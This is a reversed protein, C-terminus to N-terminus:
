SRARSGARRPGLWARVDACECLAPRSPAPKPPMRNSFAPHNMMHPNDAPHSWSSRLGSRVTGWPTRNKGLLGSMNVIRHRIENM